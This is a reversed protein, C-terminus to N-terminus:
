EELVRAIERENIGFPGLILVFQNYLRSREYLLLNCPTVYLGHILHYTIRYLSFADLFPSVPVSLIQVNDGREAANLDTIVYERGLQMLEAEALVRHRQLVSKCKYEQELQEKYFVYRVSYGADSPLLSASLDQDEYDMFRVYIHRKIDSIPIILEEEDLVLEPLDSEPVDLFDMDEVAIIRDEDVKSVREKRPKKGAAIAAQRKKEQQEKLGELHAKVTQKNAEKQRDREDLFSCWSQVLHSPPETSSVGRSDGPKYDHLINVIASLIGEPQRSASITQSRKDLFIGLVRGKSNVRNWNSEVNAGGIV